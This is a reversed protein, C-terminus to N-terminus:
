RHKEYTSRNFLRHWILNWYYANLENLKRPVKETLFLDFVKYPVSSCM